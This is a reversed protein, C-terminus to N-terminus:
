HATSTSPAPPSATTSPAPSPSPNAPSCPNTSPPAATSSSATSPSATAPSSASSTTPNSPPSAYDESGPTLNLLRADASELQAFSRLASTARTRARAELWRGTLLFALIFVVAEYYVDSALNHHAFYTPAITAAFSSAFAALTGLAILTNMNTSRHRAARFAATYIEPAAFLMTALALACLLWRIPQAPLAALTSPMTSWGVWRALHPAIFPGGPNTASSSPAGTNTTSHMSLPMSLLMAIAGAILALLTRLALHPPETDAHSHPEGPTTPLSANYGSNRVATILITPDIPAATTIQATHAMLNVSASQVGPVAQLARQVHAQCSACTMGQIRLTQQTM